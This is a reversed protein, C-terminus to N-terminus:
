EGLCEFCRQSACPMSDLTHESGDMCLEGGLGGYEGHHDDVFDWQEHFVGVEVNTIGSSTWTINQATGATWSEGGQPSTLTAQIPIM